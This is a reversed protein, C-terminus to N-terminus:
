KGKFLGGILRFPLSIVSFLLGFIFKAGDYVLRLVFTIPGGLASLIVVVLIIGLIKLIQQFWDKFDEDPQDKTDSMGDTGVLDSVAGLNYVGDPTAFHLRLIGSDEIRYYRYVHNGGVFDMTTFYDSEAVRFVYQAENIGKLEAEEFEKNQAEADALFESVTQIRKWSAKKAFLGTPEFTVEDSKYLPASEVVVKERSTDVEPYTQVTHSYPILNYTVDADFIDTINYNTKFAIYHSNCASLYLGSLGDSYYIDGTATIDVDVVDIVFAGYTLVGNYKTVSWVKGVGYKVHMTQDVSEYTKDLGEIYPRYVAAVSYYRKVEASAKCNNILYKCLTGNSNLFTLSKREYKLTANPDRQDQFALNIYSAKKNATSFNPQYMYVYLEGNEGEAVQIVKLSYDESKAPYDSLDFSSDKQLDDLVNSYTVEEATATLTFLSLIFEGGLTLVLALCLIFNVIRKNM